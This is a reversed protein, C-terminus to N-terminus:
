QLIVKKLDDSNNRLWKTTKDKVKVAYKHMGSDKKNWWLELRTDYTSGFCYAMMFYLFYHFHIDIPDINNLVKLAEKTRIVPKHILWYNCLNKNFTWESSRIMIMSYNNSVLFDGYVLAKEPYLIKDPFPDDDDCLICFETDCLKLAERTAIYQGIEDRFYSNYNIYKATGIDTRNFPFQSLTICTLNGKINEKDVLSSTLM